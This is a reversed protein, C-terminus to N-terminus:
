VFVYEPFKNKRTYQKVIYKRQIVPDYVAAPEQQYM